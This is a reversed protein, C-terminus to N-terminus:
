ESEDDDLEWGKTTIQKPKVHTVMHERISDFWESVKEGVLLARTSAIVAPVGQHSAHSCRVFVAEGNFGLEVPDWMGKVAFSPMALSQEDAPVQGVDLENVLKRLVRLHDQLTIIKRNATDLAQQSAGVIQLVQSFEDRTVFRDSDDAASVGRTTAM